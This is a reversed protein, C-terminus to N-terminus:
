VKKLGQFYDKISKVIKTNKIIEDLKGTNQILDEQSAFSHKLIKKTKPGVNPINDLYSKIMSKSRSKRHHLIAFRHAEDRLQTLIKTNRLKIQIVENNQIEWFEDKLRGGKRKYKRGKTIGLLKINTPITDKLTSLQGKGGDILIINPLSSLSEDTDNDIHKLRRNLVETLMKPDNPEDIGRIKFIRYKSSDLHGEIAVTMSGYANKGGINSIDYCEIRNLSDINLEKSLLTLARIERNRKVEVYEREDNLHQSDVKLTLYNLDTIRDRLEAAKEYEKNDSYEHMKNTLQEVLNKNKGNLFNIINDINVRYEEKSVVGPCLGIQSDFCAKTPDKSTCFPYIKRLYKFVTKISKGSPYPGFAKGDRFEKKSIQRLIKVTPFDAKTNIYLYAYSKDDKLDTNYNPQEKKILASELILAEIDNDTQIVELDKILPIMGIIRPRDEHTDSFYSTVRSKLNHAKGIYLIQKDKNYFKYVGSSRPLLSIKDNLTM